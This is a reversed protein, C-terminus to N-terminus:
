FDKKEFTPNCNLSAFHEVNIKPKRDETLIGNGEQRVDTLQTYCFGRCASIEHIGHIQDCFRALFEEENKVKGNYGWGGDQIDMAIGGFETIMLAEKGSPVFSDSCCMRSDVAYNAIRDYNNFHATIAKGDATYDHLGLIDTETTEWGDNASVIRSPDLAKCLHYLMRATSQMAHNEYMRTMGWSENVPVWAIISPHNFDRDIMEEMTQVTNCVAKHSYEFAAPIEGWVLLGMRDAWYYYRPDEVKQHKRAGNFGLRKTLEIDTRIAHDDPPTMLSDKWYGQDLVMRLYVARDNLMIYGNRVEIKRMGFYTYVEDLVVDNQLIAAKVDYLAPDRPSWLHVDEIGDPDIMSIGVTTNKGTLAIKVRTIITNDYYVTLAAETENAPRQNLAISVYAMGDTINPMIHIKELHVASVAEMYVSQWIGTCPVYWCRKWGDKWYQKGRPQERNPLDVIRLCIDNEGEHLADTIDFSFSSYGGEHMGQYLGNIYVFTQYDVAIFRLLVHKGLFNDPLSVKRRYWVTDVMKECHIGSAEAQYCFPVRITQNLQKEPIFWKEQIGMNQEDFAFQWIGNLDIWNERRFDPRPHNTDFM